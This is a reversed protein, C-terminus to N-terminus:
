DIHDMWFDMALKIWGEAVTGIGLGFGHGLGEYVHFETDVGMNKICNIRTEMTRYNAIGDNSGACAFTPVEEEHNYDSHGTYQIISSVPKPLDEGGYALPGYSALTAAMRGGASGGWLSYYETSVGLNDANEFIFSIARALDEYATQWGPRYIIAFSNFGQESITLSHPFSDHMAAVYAFGGGACTISFPVGKNGRFFFLGTNELEPNDKREEETYIDYFIQNGSMVQNKFYNCIRVTMKPDIHSYWTLTLNGLTDGAYYNSDLPFILDGFGDFAPDVIVDEISTKEDFYQIAASKFAWCLGNYFYQRQAFTDHSNGDVIRYAINGEKENNAEHFHVSEEMMAEMQNSFSSYAFDNTESMGFIFFDDDEMNFSEVINDMYDSSSTISGSSPFFYRFYPLCYEFTRWTTVSGMSFGMFGRHDRSSALGSLDTTEAYTSYKSEIAPMLDNLLENHYNRTLQLALSYNDSDQGNENTNNYTPCVIILPDIEGNEIANDLINKFASPHDPTGLTTTENSWGGHMIYMVNYKKSENYGYPIYVIARKDLSETKEEYSFSEYTSYYVQELVGKENSEQYFDSPIDLLEDPIVNSITEDQENDNFSNDSQNNGTSCATLMIMLLSLLFLRKM